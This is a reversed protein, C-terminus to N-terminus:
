DFLEDDRIVMLISSQPVIVYKDNNFEIEYSQKQLYIALDGPKTQLPIYKTSDSQKWDEEEEAGIAYGPGVKIVYGSQIPESEKVGPPLYLGSETKGSDQRPKILVRNGIVIFKDFSDVNYKMM